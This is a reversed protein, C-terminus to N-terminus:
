VQSNHNLDMNKILKIPQICQYPDQKLFCTYPSLTFTITQLHKMTHYYDSLLFYQRHAPHFTPSHYRSLTMRDSPHVWSTPYSKLSNVFTLTCM